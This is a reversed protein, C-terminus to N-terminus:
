NPLTMNFVHYPYLVSCGGSLWVAWHTYEGQLENLTGSPKCQLLVLLRTNRCLFFFFFLLAFSLYRVGNRILGQWKVLQRVLFVGSLMCTTKRLFPFQQRSTIVYVSGYVSLCLSLCTTSGGRGAAHIFAGVSSLLVLCAPVNPARPLSM